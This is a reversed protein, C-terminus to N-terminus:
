GQCASTSGTWTGTSESNSGTGTMSAGSVSGTATSKDGSAELSVGSGEVDGILSGCNDDCSYLCRMNTRLIALM